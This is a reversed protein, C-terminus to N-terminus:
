FGIPGIRDIGPALTSGCARWLRDDWSELIQVQASKSLMAAADEVQMQVELLEVVIGVLTLKLKPAIVERCVPAVTWGVGAIAKRQQALRVTGLTSGLFTSGLGISAAAVVHTGQVRQMQASDAPQELM